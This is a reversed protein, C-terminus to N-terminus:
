LQYLNSYKETLYNIYYDPNFGEGTTELLFEKVTKGGGYQHIHEKLFQHIPELDGKRLLGDIDMAKKMTHMLQAAIASGIAYSPFYGFGGFSWHSDQLIGHTDSDPTIGLYEEYKKNWLAPLDDVTVRGAFIEQEIEYRIMVHLSYTLEDAETRILSPQSKNIARYFDDLSVDSLQEPFLAVLDPYLPEWFAKTRGLNNEYFRSQSEHAGMSPGAAPTGTYNDDIDMEYLAHGGEHIVSFMASTPDSEYFHNTIRVDRNHIGLTFPHASESIVGRDFDFGIHKALTNCFEKQKNVDYPIRIFSDDIEIGRKQIEKMLPVINSRLKNFFDDLIETTFGEENHDLVYDYISQDEKKAYNAFRKQFDIIKGLTEKYSAYDNTNKANEWIGGAVACLQSYEQVEEPPIKKMDEFSKWMKKVIAQQYAELSDFEEPKMLLTLLEEVEPNIILHYSEMSLLGVAKATLEMSRKPALTSSDWNLLSLAVGYAFDKELIEELKNYNQSM